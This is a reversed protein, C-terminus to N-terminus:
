DHNSDVDGLYLDVGLPKRYTACEDLPWPRRGRLASIVPEFGTHAVMIGKGEGIVVKYTVRFILKGSHDGM